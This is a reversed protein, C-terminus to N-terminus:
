PRRPPRLTENTPAKALAAVLRTLSRLDRLDMVEAPSHSYRLPWAVAADIAGFRAFESGDNGGNTVGYQLPIRNERAIRIVREIEDPSAVSSNDLARVVAGAGIQAYAFRHSELPSDSSVFTDVAHVRHVSPGLTAAVAKAGQLGGEERVSWVFIVKHDLKAPDIEDLALLLATDGARDDISRGTIRM